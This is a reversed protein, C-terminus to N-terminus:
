TSLDLNSAGLIESYVALHRSATAAWNFGSARHSAAIQMARIEPGGNLARTLGEALAAPTPDVLIATDGCVEPLSARDAAVVPVGCTMGELAPLGFGEYISPVVVAAAGQMVGVLAKLPLRGTRRVAAVDHFLADRRPDPPGVVVLQAERHSARVARWAAALASLNKRKTAGGACLVYPKTIGLAALETEAMPHRVTFIEHVAYPTVWVREVGILDRVQNAIYESPCIVGASRKAAAFSAKPLSGEDDFFVPALDHITVVDHRSSPPVVMDLRHLLDSGHLRLRGLGQLARVPARRLYGLPLRVDCPLPTRLSGVAVARFEWRRSRLAFLARTLNAEYYQQGMPSASVM